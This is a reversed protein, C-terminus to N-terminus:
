ATKDLTLKNLIESAGDKGFENVIAIAFHKHFMNSTNENTRGIIKVKIERDRKAM